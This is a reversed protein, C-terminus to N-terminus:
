INQTGLSLDQSWLEAGIWEVKAGLQGKKWSFKFGLVAWLLLLMTLLDRREKFTGAVAIIPDDVFVQM